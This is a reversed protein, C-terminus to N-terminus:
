MTLELILGLGATATKRRMSCGAPCIRSTPACASRKGTIASSWSPAHEHDRRGAQCRFEFEMREGKENVLVGDPGPKWGAEALLRKAREPDYKYITATALAKQLDQTDPVSSHTFRTERGQVHKGGDRGPRDCADARPAGACRQVLSQGPRFNVWSWSAPSVFVKGKGQKEWQERLIMAGDFSITSRMCFGVGGALVAALNTNSDDVVRVSVRDIKPRGLAFDNFAELEMRNGADWELVRYQGARRLKRNWFPHNALTKMDGASFADQLLHRPFARVHTYQIAYAENYLDNWHIM